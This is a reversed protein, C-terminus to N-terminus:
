WSKCKAAERRYNAPSDLRAHGADAEEKARRLAAEVLAGISRRAAQLEDQGNSSSPAPGALGSEIDSRLTRVHRRLADRQIDLHRLEHEYTVRDGCSGPALESAIFIAASALRIDVQVRTVAFCAPSGPGAQRHRGALRVEAATQMKIQGHSLHNKAQGQTLEARSVDRRITPEAFSTDVRIEPPAFGSDRCDGGETARATAASLATVAVALCLVPWRRWERAV